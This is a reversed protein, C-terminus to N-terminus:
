FINIYTFHLSYSVVPPVNSKEPSQIAGKQQKEREQPLHGFLLHRLQLQSEPEQSHLLELAKVFVKNEKVLLSM